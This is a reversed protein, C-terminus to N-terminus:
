PRGKQENGSPRHRCSCDRIHTNKKGCGFCVMPESCEAVWHGLKGCRHCPERLKRPHVFVGKEESKKLHARASEATKTPTPSSSVKGPPPAGKAALARRPKPSSSQNRSPKAPSAEVIESFSPKRTVKGIQQQNSPNLANTGSKDFRVEKVVLPRAVPALNPTIAVSNDDAIVQGMAISALRSSRPQKPAVYAFAPFASSEASPPPKYSKEELRRLEEEKGLRQLEPFSVCRSKDIRQKYAPHMNRYAVRLQEALSMPPMIQDMLGRIKSLYTSIDEHPGQTRERLERALAEQLDQMCFQLRFADIFDSYSRWNGYERRFWYWAEDDLVSPLAKIIDDLSLGYSQKCEYLNTLFGEPDKKYDGKFAIRWRALIECTQKERLFSSTELGSYERPTRRYSQEDVHHGASSPRHYADPYVAQPALYSPGSDTRPYPLPERGEGRYARHELPLENSTAIAPPLGTSAAFGSPNRSSAIPQELPESWRVSNHAGLRTHPAYGQTRQQPPLPHSSPWTASSVGLDTHAFSVRPEQPPFYDTRSAASQFTATSTTATSVANSMPMSTPRFAQAEARLGSLYANRNSTGATTAPLTQNVSGNLQPDSTCPLWRTPLTRWVYNESQEAAKGLGSAEARANTVADEMQDIRVMNGPSGELAFPVPSILYRSSQAQPQSPLTREDALAGSISSDARRESTASPALLYQRSERRTDADRYRFIADTSQSFTQERQAGAFTGSDSALITSPRPVAGAAVTRLAPRLPEAPAYTSPM